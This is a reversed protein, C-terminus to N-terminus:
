SLGRSRVREPVIRWMVRDTPMTRGSWLAELHPHYKEIFRGALDRRETGEPVLEARGTVTVSKIAPGRTGTEVVVSVRGDRALNKVKPLGAVSVMFVAAPGHLFWMPTAVPAGDERLMALIAVERSALFSQIRRDGIAEDARGAASM